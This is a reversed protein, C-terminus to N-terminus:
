RGHLLGLEEEKKRAEFPVEPLPSSLSNTVTMLRAVVRGAILRDTPGCEFSYGPSAM